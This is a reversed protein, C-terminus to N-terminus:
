KILAKMRLYSNWDEICDSALRFGDFDRSGVTITWNLSDIRSDNTGGVNLVTKINLALQKIPSGSRNRVNLKFHKSGNAIDACLCLNESSSIYKEIDGM